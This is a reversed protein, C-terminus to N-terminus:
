LINDRSIELRIRPGRIKMREIKQYFYSKKNTFDLLNPMYKIVDNLKLNIESLQNNKLIKNIIKKNNLCFSSFHVMRQSLSNVNKFLSKALNTTESVQKSMSIEVMKVEQELPKKKDKDDKKESEELNNEKIMELLDPQFSEFIIMINTMM